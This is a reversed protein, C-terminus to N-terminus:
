PVVPVGLSWVSDESALLRSALWEDCEHLSGFDARWALIPKTYEHLQHELTAGIAGHVQHANRVVVTAAHGTVSRAIAVSLELEDANRKGTVFAAVAADTATVALACESAAASILHQVAQFAAIPRGFQRRESAFQVCLEIVQDMAGTMQIARALRGRFALERVVSPDIEACDLGGPDIRIDSCPRGALDAGATLELDPIPVDAVRWGGEHPWVVVVGDVQSVWPVKPAAGKPDLICTTRSGDTAPLGATRLLWHGLLDNEALPVPAAARAAARLLAAAEVWGAGAGDPSTLRTLGLHDLTSWLERDLALERPAHSRANRWDSFVQRFLQALEADIRSDAWM